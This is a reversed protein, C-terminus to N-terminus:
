NNLVVLETQSRSVNTPPRGGLDYTLFPYSMADFPHLYVSRRPRFAAASDYSSRKPKDQLLNLFMQYSRECARAVILEENHLLDMTIRVRAEVSGQFKPADRMKIPRLGPFQPLLKRSAREVDLHDYSGASGARFQNFASNDSVHDFRFNFTEDDALERARKNWFYMRRMLNRTLVDYSIKRNVYVMEDFLLWVSKTKTTIYQLFIIANCSQGLDYGITIPFLPSPLLRNRKSGRVHVPEYFYESFLADGSPRDVWEGEILRKHLIVDHACADIVRQYYDAPVNHQNEEFPVHYVAFDPRTGDARKGVEFYLYHAWHSPGDPNCTAYYQQVTRVGKKRGVQQIVASYYPMNEKTGGMSTIEDVLVFSPEMGKVVNEVLDAHPLSILAVKSWGGWRNAIYFYRIRQEDMKQETYDLGIGEKWQPLIDSILNDWVGGQTAMSRIKVIIIALGNFAEYSHRVLKHLGGVSKGSARPGYALVHPSTSNFIEKQTPNLSPEWYEDQYSTNSHPPPPGDDLLGALEDFAQPSIRAM